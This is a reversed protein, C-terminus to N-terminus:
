ANKKSEKGEVVIVFEGKIVIQKLETQIQGLTGRITTEYLKTLEKSISAQRSEGFYQILETITKELRHVSEYFIITRTEEALSELRTKRGKKHPLFGEFVFRDCPLGSNILAPIFATPGPLSEVLINNQICEHVILYGPDSIGPTGADSVLAISEGSKIKKIIKEKIFHENFKHYSQLPKEIKYYNLLNRSTRTDEALILNVEKLVDIARYTIDKLNGVPTPVLYLKSM